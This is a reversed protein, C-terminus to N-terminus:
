QCICLCIEPFFADGNFESYVKTLEIKDRPLNSVYREYFVRTDEEEISFVKDFSIFGPIFLNSILLITPVM